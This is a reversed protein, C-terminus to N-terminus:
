QEAHEDGSNRIHRPSLRQNREQVRRRWDVQQRRRSEERAYKVIEDFVVIGVLAVVLIFAVAFYDLFRELRPEVPGGAAWGILANVMRWFQNTEANFIGLM